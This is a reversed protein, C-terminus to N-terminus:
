SLIFTHFPYPAAQWYQEDQVVRTLLYALGCLLLLDLSLQCCKRAVSNQRLSNEQLYRSAKDIQM